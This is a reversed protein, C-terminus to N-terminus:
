HLFNAYSDRCLCLTACKREEIRKVSSINCKRQQPLGCITLNLSRRSRSRTSGETRMCPDMLDWPVSVWWRWIEDTNITQDEVGFELIIKVCVSAISDTSPSQFFWLACNNAQSIPLRKPCKLLWQIWLYCRQVYLSLLILTQFSHLFFPSLSVKHWLMRLQGLM